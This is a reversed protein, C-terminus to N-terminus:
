EIVAKRGNITVITGKPLNKPIEAESAFSATSTNDRPADWGLLKKFGSRAQQKKQYVDEEMKKAEMEKNTDFEKVRQASEQGQYGQRYKEAMKERDANQQAINAMLQKYSTDSALTAEKLGSESALKAKAIMLDQISTDRRNKDERTVQNSMLQNKRMQDANQLYAEGQYPNSQLGAMIKQGSESNFTDLLGQIGKGLWGQEEKPQAQPAQLNGIYQDILNQPLQIDSNTPQIQPILM